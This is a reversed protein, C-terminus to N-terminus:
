LGPWTPLLVEYKDPGSGSPAWGALGQRGGRLGGGGRARRTQLPTRAALMEGQPGLVSPPPPLANVSPSRPWRARPFLTLTLALHSARQGATQLLSNFRCEWTRSSAGGNGERPKNGSGGSHPQLVPARPFPPFAWAGGLCEAVQRHCKRAVLHLLEIEGREGTAAAPCTYLMSQGHPSSPMRGQGHALLRGAKTSGRGWGPRPDGVQSPAHRDGAYRTQGIPSCAPEVPCSSPPTGPSPECTARPTAM